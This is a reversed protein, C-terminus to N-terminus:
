ALVVQSKAIPSSIRIPLYYNATELYFLGPRIAPVKKM